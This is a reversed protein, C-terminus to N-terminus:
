FPGLNMVWDVSGHSIKGFFIGNVLDILQGLKLDLHNQLEFSVNEFVIQGVSMM